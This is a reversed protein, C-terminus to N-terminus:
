QQNAGGIPATPAAPADGSGTPTAPTSTGGPAPAAAATQSGVSPGCAAKQQGGADATDTPAVVTLGNDGTAEEGCSAGATRLAAATDATGPDSSGTADGNAAGSPAAPRGTLGNTGGPAGAGGVLGALGFGGNVAGPQIVGGVLQDAASVSIEEFVPLGAAANSAAGPAGPLPSKPGPPGVPSVAVPYNVQNQSGIPVGQNLSQTGGVAITSTGGTIAKAATLNGGATITLAGQARAGQMTINGGATMTLSAVGFDSPNFDPWTTGNVIHPGIDNNLLINGTTATLTVAKLTELLYLTLNRNATFTLAGNTLHIESLSGATIDRGATLTLPGGSAAASPNSGVWLLNNLLVDRGATGTFTNLM